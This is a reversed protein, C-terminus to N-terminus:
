IVRITAQRTTTLVGQDILLIPGVDYSEKENLRLNGHSKDLAKSEHGWLGFDNVSVLLCESKFYCTEMYIYIYIYILLSYKVLVDSQKLHHMTSEQGQRLTWPRM